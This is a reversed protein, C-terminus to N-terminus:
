FAGEGMPHLLARRDVSEAGRRGRLMAKAWHKDAQLFDKVKKLAHFFTRRPVKAAEWRKRRFYASAVRAYRNGFRRRVREVVVHVM